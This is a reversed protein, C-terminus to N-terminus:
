RGPWLVWSQRAALRPALARLTSGTGSALDVIKMSPFGRVSAVVADLVAPDRARADYPERLALWEASFSSM